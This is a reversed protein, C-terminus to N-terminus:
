EKEGVSLVDLEKCKAKIGLISSINPQTRGDDGSIFEKIYAGGQAEIFVEFHDNTLPFIEVNYIKKKRILDARRHSVRNPTRQNIIIPFNPFLSILNKPLTGEFEVLARYKKKTFESKSKIEKIEAKSSERLDFVEVTKSSNIKEIIESLNATRRMPEKLELIFPRGTGLMLADIDERGAGHFSSSKAVFSKQFPAAIIQEVSTRYQFGTYECKECKRGKCISCPWKTQPIGRILKKYRGYFYLSKPKTRFRIKELGKIEIIINLDPSNFDVDKNTLQSIMLGVERNIEHKLTLPSFGYKSLLKDANTFLDTKFSTGVLFSNFEISQIDDIISRVGRLVKDVIGHCLDCQDKDVTMQKISDPLTEFQHLTINPLDSKFRGLTRGICRPCIYISQSIEELKSIDVERQKM